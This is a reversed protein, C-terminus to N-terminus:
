KEDRNSITVQPFPITIGNDTFLLFLERNLAREAAFRNGEECRVSFKLNVSSDALASVGLYVPRGIFVPNRQEIADLNNEIIEEVKRLDTGYDMGVEAVVVSSNASLNVVTAIKSNNIIKVNGSVDIIKTTTLGIELVSGRFGDILVIDAVHYEGEFVINLGAIIDSILSQAGLGIILAIIGASVLIASVPVGWVSLDVFIFAFTMSYKIASSILKVVTKVKNDTKIFLVFLLGRLIFNINMFLSFYYLTGLLRPWIDGWGGVFSRDLVVGQALAGGASAAIANFVIIYVIMLVTLGVTVFFYIKSSKEKAAWWSKLAKFM